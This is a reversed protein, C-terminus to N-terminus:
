RCICTDMADALKKNVKAAKAYVAEYFPHGSGKWKRHFYYGSVEPVFGVKVIRGLEAMKGFRPHKVDLWLPDQLNWDMFAHDLSHLVTGIFLGEPHIDPFQSKYRKFEKHFAARVKVIFDVFESYPMLDVIHSHQVINERVGHNFTDTLAKPDWDHSLLGEKKWTDFFRPFCTFGFYNYIVTVLSNTHLFPNTRKMNENDINCGWNGYAHLKVHQASVTNYWLLILAESANLTEDNLKCEVMKKTGLDVDVTLLEATVMKGKQNVYPFDPINHILVVHVHRLCFSFTTNSFSAFTTLNHSECPPHTPFNSDTMGTFVFGAINGHHSNKKTKVFYHIAQSQELLLSGVLAEYDVSKMKLLGLKEVLIVRLKLIKTNIKWLAYSCPGVFTYAWLLQFFSIHIHDMNHSEAKSYIYDDNNQLKGTRNKYSASDHNVTEMNTRITSTSSIITNRDKIQLLKQQNLQWEKLDPPSNKNYTPSDPHNRPLRSAFQNQYEIYVCYIHVCLIMLLCLLDFWFGNLPICWSSSNLIQIFTQPLTSM